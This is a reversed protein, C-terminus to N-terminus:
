SSETKDFFAVVTIGTEPFDYSKEAVSNMFVALNEKFVENCLNEYVYKEIIDLNLGSNGVNVELHHYEGWDDKISIKKYFELSIRKKFEQFEM